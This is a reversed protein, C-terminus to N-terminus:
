EGCEADDIQSDVCELFNHIGAMVARLESLDICGIKLDLRKGQRDSAYRFAFSGPDVESFEQVLSALVELPAPDAGPNYHEIISRCRPWITSIDHSRFEPPQGLARGHDELLQKLALELSHRYAFIIPYILNSRKYAEGETEEVLFDAAERYGRIMRWLRERVDDAPYAGYRWPAAVFVRDGTM